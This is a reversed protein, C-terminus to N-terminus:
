AETGQTGTIVVVSQPDTLQVTGLEVARVKVGIYQDEITTTQLPVLAKWTASRQPILVIANAATVSNSVVINIGALSLTKGGEATVNSILPFQAGKDTLYKM